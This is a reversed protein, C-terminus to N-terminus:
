FLFFRPATGFNSAMGAANAGFRWIKLFIVSLCLKDSLMRRNVKNYWKCLMACVGNSIPRSRPM